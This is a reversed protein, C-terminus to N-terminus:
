SSAVQEVAPAVVEPADGKVPRPVLLLSCPTERLLEEGTSGVVLRSLPGWRRSGIVLLDADRAAQELEGAPDGIRVERSVDGAVGELLREARARRARVIEDWQVLTLPAGIPAMTTPLRDDVVAVVDVREVGRGLESAIALAAESEPSGDIGVVIRRLRFPEGALGHAAIAVPCSADHVVQRGTRGAVSRGRAARHSAGLVLVDAREREAVHRLGRAAFSDCVSQTRASPAHADRVARLMRETERGPHFERRLVPPFTLLPDPHVGVLLVDRDSRALASALAAADNGGAQGDVGAVIKRLMPDGRPNMAMCISLSGDEGPM